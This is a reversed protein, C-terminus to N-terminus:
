KLHQTFFEMMRKQLRNVTTPEAVVHTFGALPLFEFPRGARFLERTMKLSHMFYVNDDATGHVILLPVTLNKCYTLVSSAEYGKANEAPLGMYRETYHTDYDRFDAVPAGAVGCTFVDPRRMTAMATFYGGFSWGTIGTRTLDMEKYREGLLKLAKAQDELPIDILNLHSAREWARGRRPTGRGDISVVIFGHDAYWQQLIYGLPTDNVMNSTPGGYVSVIVPYRKSADFTRPRIIAAHFARPEGVVNGVKAIELNPMFPPKEAKSDISGALTGDARRVQWTMGGTSLNTTELRTAFNESFAVGNQGPQELVTVPAAKDLSIRAIQSRTPVPAAAVYACRSKSDVAVLDLMPYGPPTLVRMLSGNRARLELRAFDGGAPANDYQETEWLFASGDDLWKPCGKQINIWAADREILLPSTQGTAPDVELLVQENQLRNQVLMTLPANKSWNVHAVYPYKARDWQVWTTRGSGDVSAIGLKVDANKGGPRPYPWTEPTKSPDAPDPISFLEMGATDAQEFCILRSDPSFWYGEFRGMEEQAVFEALGNTITGGSGGTVKWEKTGAVDTVYVEGGRVCAVLSGDPSFRPDIPFGGAKSVLETRGGSERDVVFLRGSLPVLIKRGDKSLQYSSIGRSTMRMRERRALEEATLKEEGGGLVSEATLLVREKGSAVDFTFLDQRFNRSESRLFLLASGDPTFEFSRPRGLTFKNTLAFAELFADDGADQLSAPKTIPTTPAAAEPRSGGCAALLLATTTLCAAHKLTKTPNAM